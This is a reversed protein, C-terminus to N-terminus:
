LYSIFNVNCDSLLLKSLNHLKVKKNFCIEVIYFTDVLKFLIHFTNNKFFCDVLTCIFDHKQM